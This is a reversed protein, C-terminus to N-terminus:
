LSEEEIETMMQTTTRLMFDVESYDVDRGQKKLWSEASEIRAKLKEWKPDAPPTNLGLLAYAVAFGAHDLYSDITLRWGNHMQLAFIPGSARKNSSLLRGWIFEQFENDSQCLRECEALVAAKQQEITM